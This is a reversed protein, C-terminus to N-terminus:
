ELCCYRPTLSRAEKRLGLEGEEGRTEKWHGGRQTTHTSLVKLDIIRDSM